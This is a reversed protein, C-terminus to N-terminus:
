LTTRKTVKHGIAGLVFVFIITVALTTVWETNVNYDLGVLRYPSIKFNFLAVVPPVAYYHILTIFMIGFRKMKITGMIALLAVNMMFFLQIGIYYALAQEIKMDMGFVIGSYFFNIIAGLATIGSTILFLYILKATQVQKVKAGAMLPMIITRNKYENTFISLAFFLAVVNAIQYVDGLYNVYSSYQSIDMLTAFNMDGEFQSELIKPTFYLIMPTSLAFFLIIFALIVLKNTRIFEKHEKKLYAKFTM